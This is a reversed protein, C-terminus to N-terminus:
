HMIDGRQTFCTSGVSSWIRYHQGTPMNHWLIVYAAVDEHVTLLSGWAMHGGSSNRTEVQVVMQTPYSGGCLNPWIAHNVQVDFCGPAPKVFDQSFTWTTGNHTEWGLGDFATFHCSQTGPPIEAAAVPSGIGIGVMLALVLVIRKFMPM